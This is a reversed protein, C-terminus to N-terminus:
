HFCTGGPGHELGLVAEQKKLLIELTVLFNSKLNYDPGPPIHNWLSVWVFFRMSSVKIGIGEQM